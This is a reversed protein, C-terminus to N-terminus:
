ALRREFDLASEFSTLRRLLANYRSHASDPDEGALREYLRHEADPFPAAVRVGHARLRPAAISVLLGEVTEQSRALDDLGKEVLDGGPLAEFTM